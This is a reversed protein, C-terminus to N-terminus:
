AEIETRTSPPVWDLMVRLYSQELDHLQKKRICAAIRAKLLAIEFDKPLFDEAGLEIARVVNAMRDEVGSIVIVPIHQTRLGSKLEQLVEFGDMEPMIIDLLIVDVPESMLLQLAARGSSAFAQQYGLAAVAKGIKMRITSSDDVILIRMGRPM